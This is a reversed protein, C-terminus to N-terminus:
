SIYGGEEEGTMGLEASSGTRMSLAKKRATSIGNGMKVLRIPYSFLAGVCHRRSTSVLLKTVRAGTMVRARFRSKM